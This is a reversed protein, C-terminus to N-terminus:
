AARKLVSRRVGGRTHRFLDKPDDAPPVLDADIGIGRKLAQAHVYRLASYDELAFGVSDFGTVAQADRRGAHQGALVRWLETV